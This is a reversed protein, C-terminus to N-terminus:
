IFDKKRAQLVYTLAILTVIALTQVALITLVTGNWVPTPGRIVSRIGYLDTVGSLYIQTGINAGVIAAVSFGISETVLSVMLIVAYALLIGVLVITAFPLTGDPLGEGPAASGEGAFALFCGAASLTLWVPGFLALNAILKASTYERVTIPLSMIFALTHKCREEVVTEMVAHIGAGAMGTIFLIFGALGVASGGLYAPYMSRFVAIAVAAIGGAWWCLVPVKMIALDKMVLQRVISQSM